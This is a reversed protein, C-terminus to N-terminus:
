LPIPRPLTYDRDFFESFYNQSAFGIQPNNYKDFLHELTQQQVPIRKKARIIHDPGVNYATIAFEWRRFMKFNQKLLHIGAITSLIPNLRGDERESIPLFSKGTQKIFQWPGIASARSVASTNFSSEVFPIALLERPAEMLFFLRSLTSYFPAMREIASYVSDRQGSQARVREILSNVFQRKDKQTKPVAINFRLLDTALKASVPNTRPNTLYFPIALKIEKIRDQVLQEQLDYRVFRNLVSDHLGTFNLADYIIQHLDRDHIVVQEPSYTSYIDFWFKVSSILYAPVQFAPDIKQKTVDLIELFHSSPSIPAPPSKRLKEDYFMKEVIVEENLFINEPLLGFSSSLIFFSFFILKEM